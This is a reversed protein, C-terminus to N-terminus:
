TKLPDVSYTVGPILNIYAPNECDFSPGREDKDLDSLPFSTGYLPRHSKASHPHPGDHTLAVGVEVFEEGDLEEVLGQAKYESWERSRQIRSDDRATAREDGDLARKLEDLDM